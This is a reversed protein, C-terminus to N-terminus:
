GYEITTAKIMCDIMDTKILLFMCVQTDLPGRREIFKRTVIVVFRVHISIAGISGFGRTEAAIVSLSLWSAM